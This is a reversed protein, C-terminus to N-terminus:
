DGSDIEAVVRVTTTGNGVDVTVRAGGQSCRWDARLEAVAGEIVEAPAACDWTMTREYQEVYRGVGKSSKWGTDMAPRM